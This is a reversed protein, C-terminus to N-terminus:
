EGVYEHRALRSRDGDMTSELLHLDLVTLTAVGFSEEMKGRVVYPQNPSLLHCCRRYVEPFLTADYPATVDVDQLAHPPIQHWRPNTQFLPIPAILLATALRLDTSTPSRM